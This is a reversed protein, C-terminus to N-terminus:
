KILEIQEKKRTNTLIRSKGKKRCKPAPKRPQAKPFPRFIDPSVTAENKRSSSPASKNFLSHSAAYLELTSSEKQAFTPEPRDSVYSSLFYDDPFVDENLPSIGTTAFGLHQQKHLGSSISQGGDSSFKKKRTPLCETM